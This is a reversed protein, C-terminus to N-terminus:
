HARVPRPDRGALGVLDSKGADDLFEHLRRAGVQHTGAIARLDGLVLNPVRCNGGIIDFLLQNEHGEEYLKAPAIRVGEPSSM